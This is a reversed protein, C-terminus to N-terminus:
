SSRGGPLAERQDIRVLWPDSLTTVVRVAQCAQAPSSVQVVVQLTCLTPFDAVVIGSGADAASKERLLSCESAPLSSRDCSWGGAM